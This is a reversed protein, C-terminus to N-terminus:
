TTTPTQIIDPMNDSMFVGDFFIPIGPAKYEHSETSVSQTGDQDTVLWTIEIHWILMWPVSCTPATKADLYQQRTPSSIATQEVQTVTFDYDKEYEGSPHSGSEYTLTGGRITVVNGHADHIVSNVYPLCKVAVLYTGAAKTHIVNSQIRKQDTRGVNKGGQVIHPTIITLKQDAADLYPEPYTKKDFPEFTINVSSSSDAYCAQTDETPKWTATVEDRPIYVSLLQKNQDMWLPTIDIIMQDTVPDSSSEAGDKWVKSCEVTVICQVDQSCDCSPLARKTQIVFGCEDDPAVTIETSSNNQSVVYNWMHVLTIYQHVLRLGKLRLYEDDEKLDLGCSEHIPLVDKPEVTSLIPMSNDDLDYQVGNFWTVRDKSLTNARSIVDYASYLSVDKLTNIWMKLNELEYKLRYIAECTTCSPCLDVLAIGPVTSPVTNDTDLEEVIGNETYAWSVCPSGEIFFEGSDNPPVDNISAISPLYDDILDSLAPMQEEPVLEFGISVNNGLTDVIPRFLKLDDQAVSFTPTKSLQITETGTDISINM